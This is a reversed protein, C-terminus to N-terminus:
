FISIGDFRDQHKVIQPKNALIADVIRKCYQKLTKTDEVQYEDYLTEKICGTFKACDFDSRSNDIQSGITKFM